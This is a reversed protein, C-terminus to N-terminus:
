ARPPRLLSTSLLLEPRADPAPRFTSRSVSGFSMRPESTPFSVAACTGAIAILPCDPMSRSDRDTPAGGRETSPSMPHDMGGMDQMAGSGMEAMDEGMSAMGDMSVMPQGPAMGEMGACTTSAWLSEADSASLASLALLAGFFRVRNNM